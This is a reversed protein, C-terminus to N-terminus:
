RQMGRYELERPVYQGRMTATIHPISDPVIREARRMEEWKTSAVPRALAESQKATKKRQPKVVQLVDTLVRSVWQHNRGIHAAIERQTKGAANMVRITEIVEPDAKTTKM